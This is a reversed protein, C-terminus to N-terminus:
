CTFMAGEKAIRDVNPTPHGLARGGGSYCGFDNWGTDDTMLILINPRKGGEQTTANVKSDALALLQGKNVEACCAPGAGSDSRGTLEAADARQFPNLRGSAALYGLLIGVALVAAMQVKSNRLVTSRWDLSSPVTMM